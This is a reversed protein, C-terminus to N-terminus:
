YGLLLASIELADTCSTTLLTKKFGYKKSIFDQCKKTFKGNGSSQTYLAEEIYAIEKGTLHAKNFAIM